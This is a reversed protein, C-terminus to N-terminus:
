MGRFYKCPFTALTTEECDTTEMYNDLASNPVEYNGAESRHDWRRNVREHQLLRASQHRRRRMGLADRVQHGSGSYPCAVSPAAAPIRSM